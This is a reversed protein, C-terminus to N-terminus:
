ARATLNRRKRCLEEEYTSTIIGQNEKHSKRARDNYVRKQPISELGDVVAENM